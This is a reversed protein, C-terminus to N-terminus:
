YEIDYIHKRIQEMRLDLEASKNACSLLEEALDNSITEPIDKKYRIKHELSAWFDMAITRLQIEVKMNRKGEQLFIPIEIILHLSRYGNQKPNSIYDKREVLTVDDQNLICDALMYIDDVFSCVVRIGAVDYLNQEIGEVSVPYKRNELKRIISEPSKIRTKINEIPNRDYRLSFQENLVRFKTEVEMLACNYYAMLTKFSVDSSNMNELLENTLVNQNVIKNFQNM